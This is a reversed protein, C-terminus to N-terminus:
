DRSPCDEGLPSGDYAKDGCDNVEHWVFGRGDELIAVVRDIGFERNRQGTLVTASGEAIAAGVAEADFCDFWFPATRPIAGTYREFGDLAVDGVVEFCARYRIPSSDADIARFATVPVSGVSGDDRVLAVSEQVPVEEYFHFVQLYYMGAGAAAMSALLILAVAKGTM